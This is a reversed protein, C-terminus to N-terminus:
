SLLFSNYAESQAESIKIGSKIKSLLDQSVQLVSSRQLNILEQQSKGDEFVVM